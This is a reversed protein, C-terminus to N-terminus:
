FRQRAKRCPAGDGQSNRAFLPHSATCVWLTLSRPQTSERHAGPVIEKCGGKRYGRLLRILSGLMVDSFRHAFVVLM